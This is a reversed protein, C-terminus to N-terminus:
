HRLWPPPWRPWPRGRLDTPGEPSLAGGAPLGQQRSPRELRYAGKYRKVTVSDLNDWMNKIAFLYTRDNEFSLQMIKGM